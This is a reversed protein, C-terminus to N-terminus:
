LPEVGRGCEPCDGDDDLDAHPGRWECFMCRFRADDPMPEGWQEPPHDSTFQEAVRVGGEPRVNVRRDGPM